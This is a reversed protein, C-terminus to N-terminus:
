DEKSQASAKSRLSKAVVFDSDGPRRIWVDRWADRACGAVKQAFQNPSVAAGDHILKDGEVKAYHYDSNYRIRLATGSPLFVKKWSYGTAISVPSLIEDKWDANDMWYGIAAEIVELPERPSKKERLFDVLGIFTSVSIPVSIEPM